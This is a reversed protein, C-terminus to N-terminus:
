RVPDDANIRSLDHARLSIALYRIWPRGAQFRGAAHGSVISVLMSDPYPLPKILVTNVVTFIATTAGIGLALMLLAAAAFGPQSRLLRTADRLDDPM